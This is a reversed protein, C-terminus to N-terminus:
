RNDITAKESFHCSNSCRPPKLQIFMQSKVEAQTRIEHNMLKLGMGPEESIAHFRRPIRDRGREAEGRSEREFYIIFM